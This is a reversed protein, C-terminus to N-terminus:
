RFHFCYHEYLEFFTQAKVKHPEKIFAYSESFNSNCPDDNFNLVALMKNDKDMGEADARTLSNPVGRGHRVKGESVQMVLIFLFVRQM